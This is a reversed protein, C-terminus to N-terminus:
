ASTRRIDFIDMQRGPDSDEIEQKKKRYADQVANMTAIALCKSLNHDITQLENHAANVDNILNKWYDDTEAGNFMSYRKFLKWYATYIKFYEQQEKENM